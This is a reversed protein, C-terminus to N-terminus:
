LGLCVTSLKGLIGSCVRSGKFCSCQTCSKQSELGLKTDLLAPLGLFCEGLMDQVGTVTGFAPAFSGTRWVNGIWPSSSTNWCPPRKRRLCFSGSAVPSILVSPELAQGKINIIIVIVRLSLQPPYEDTRGAAPYIPSFSVWFRKRKGPTARVGLRRLAWRPCRRSLEADAPTVSKILLLLVLCM